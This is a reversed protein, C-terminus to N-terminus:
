VTGWKSQYINRNIKWNSGRQEKQENHHVVRSNYCVLFIGEPRLRSLQNCADTDEFGSGVYREDFRLGNMKICCCATLLRKTPVIWEGVPEHSVYCDNLGTMYAPTGNPKLLYSSVMVVEPRRIADVLVRLWRDCGLHMPFSVDDDVMCIPENNDLVCGIEDPSFAIDLGRNRNVAASGNAVGTVIVECPIGATAEIQRVLPIMEDWCRRTPIV